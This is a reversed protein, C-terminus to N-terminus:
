GDDEDEDELLANHDLVDCLDLTHLEVIMGRPIDMTMSVKDNDQDLQMAVKIMDDSEAILFGVTQIIPLTEVDEIDIWDDESQADTWLCMVLPQQTIIM